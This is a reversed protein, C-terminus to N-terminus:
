GLWAGPWLKGLSTRECFMEWKGTAWCNLYRPREPDDGLSYTEDATARTWAGAPGEWPKRQGPYFQVLSQWDATDRNVGEFPDPGLTWWENLQHGAAGLFAIVGAILFHNRLRLYNDRALRWEPRNDNAANSM